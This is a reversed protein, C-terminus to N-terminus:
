HHEPCAFPAYFAEASRPDLISSRPDVARSRRDESRSRRDETPQRGLIRFRLFGEGVRLGQEIAVVLSKYIDPKVVFTDVVVEMDYTLGEDREFEESMDLLEDDVRLRRYGRSRIEGLLFPYDEGYIKFVPADLEILMGQPLSLLHEAIQAVSRVPVERRCYPCHATGSTAYLGR